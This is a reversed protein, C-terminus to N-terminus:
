GYIEFHPADIFPRKNAARKIDIYQNILEDMPWDAEALSPVHWAAGWRISLGTERAGFKMAEAIEEYLALEWSGRGDVYAMLDVAHGTLHKSDMTRSAGSNVLKKQRAISRVGEIVGFDIRTVDIAYHVAEILLADVGQLKSLSRESLKFNM